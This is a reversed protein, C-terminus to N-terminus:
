LLVGMNQTVTEADIVVRHELFLLRDHERVLRDEYRGCVHLQSEQSRDAVFMVFYASASIVSDDGEHGRINTIVHLTKAPNQWHYGNTYAAREKLSVTGRDVYWWMGTTSINNHTGAANVGEETFFSLWENPRKQDIAEAYRAYFDELESRLVTSTSYSDTMNRGDRKM